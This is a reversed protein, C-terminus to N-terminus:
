EELRGAWKICGLIHERFWPLDWTEDFHGLETYIVRGQGYDHCWGLAYDHDDRTGKSVDVSGNDLRLLVHTKAREWQKFTYVEEVLKCSAGLMRTAPHDRDEVLVNIEQTWPHGNFYGGLMEGYEPWQYCTDTANHIGFFGKGGRVFDLVAQRQAADFPLEGTTAFILVDYSALNEATIRSCLHTTVANFLGTTKGLAKIAVEANPLYSHEFGASHRLMLINM